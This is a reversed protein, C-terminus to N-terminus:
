ILRSNNCYTRSFLTTYSVLKLNRYWLGGIAPTATRLQPLRVALILIIVSSPLISLITKEFLLTFDFDERCGTVTPGFGVDADCINAFDM